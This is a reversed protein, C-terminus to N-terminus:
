NKGVLTAGREALLKDAIDAVECLRPSFGRSDLDLIYRVITKEETTTLKTCNPRTDRRFTSGNLRDSLRQHSVNYAAAAQRVRKFQGARYAQLALIIRGEQQFSDYTRQQHM